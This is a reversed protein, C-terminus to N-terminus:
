CRLVFIEPATVVVVTALVHVRERDGLHRRVRVFM